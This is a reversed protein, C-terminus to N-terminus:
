KRIDRAQIFLSTPDDRVPHLFEPGIANGHGKRHEVGSGLDDEKNRTWFLGREERFHQVGDEVPRTIRHLPDFRTVPHFPPHQVSRSRRSNSRTWASAFTVEWRERWLPM